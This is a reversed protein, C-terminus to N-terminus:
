KEASEMADKILIKALSRYRDETWVFKRPDNEETIIVEYNKGYIKGIVKVKQSVFEEYGFDGYILEGYKVENEKEKKM